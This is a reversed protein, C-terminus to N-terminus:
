AVTRASGVGCKHLNDPQDVVEGGYEELSELIICGCASTGNLIAAVVM